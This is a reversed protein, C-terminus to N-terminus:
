EREQAPQPGPLVGVAGNGDDDNGANGDDSSDDGTPFFCCRTELRLGSCWDRPKEADLLRQNFHQVCQWESMEMGM